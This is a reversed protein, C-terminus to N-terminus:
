NSESQGVKRYVHVYRCADPDYVREVKELEGDRVLDDLWHTAAGTTITHPANASNWRDIFEGMTFDGAQRFDPTTLEVIEDLIDGIGATGGNTM